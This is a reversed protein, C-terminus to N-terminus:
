PLVMLVTGEVRGEGAKVANPSCRWLCSLFPSCHPARDSRALQPSCSLLDAIPLFNTLCNALLQSQDCRIVLDLCKKEIHLPLIARVFVMVLAGSSANSNTDPGCAYTPRAPSLMSGPFATSRQFASHGSDVGLPAGEGALDCMNIKGDVLQSWANLYIFMRM